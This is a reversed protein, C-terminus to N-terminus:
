DVWINACLTTSTCINARILCDTKRLRYPFISKTVYFMPAARKSNSKKKNSTKYFPSTKYLFLLYTMMSSM